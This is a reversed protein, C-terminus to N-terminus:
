KPFQLIVWTGDEESTRMEIAGNMTETILKASYT